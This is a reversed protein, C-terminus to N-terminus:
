PERLTALPDSRLAAMAPWAAAAMTAVFLAAAASGAAMPDVVAAAPLLRGLSYAAAFVLILGAIMAMAVLRLTETLVSGLVHVRSAGIAMRIGFEQRRDAVSYSVVGFVGVASLLVALAALVSLLAANFRPAAITRGIRNDLTMMGEVPVDRDFEAVVARASTAVSLPDGAVRAMVILERVVDQALPVFVQPGAPESLSQRVDDVVGVVRVWDRDETTSGLILAGIPDAGPWYREAAARNVIAVPEGRPEGPEFLRGNLLPVGLVELYGASVPVYSVHPLDAMPVERGRITLSNFWGTDDVPPTLTAGAREIGPVQELRAILEDAARGVSAGDAYKADPLQVSWTLVGSSVVGTDVRALDAFTAILTGALTALSFALGVQLAVLARRARVASRPTSARSGRLAALAEPTTLRRGRWVPLIAVILACTVSAALAFVAVHPNAVAVGGARPIAGDGLALLWRVGPGALILGVLGGSCALVLTEAVVLSALRSWSAGLAARMALERARGISRALFLSAVNACAIALLVAVAALIVVLAGRQRGVLTELLPVPDFYNAKNYDPYARELDGAIADLRARALAPSLGPRLRAVMSHRHWRWQGVPDVVPALPHWGDSGSPFDFAGPMVGVIEYSAGDLRLVQGVADPRGGLVGTWLAHSIVIVDAGTREEERTFWRGLEPRVEFTDSFNASTARTRLTRAEGQGTLVQSDYAWISLTDFIESEERLRAYNGYAVMRAEPNNRDLEYVRVLRDASPYPLPALLVRDVVAYIATLAGIGLGLTAVAVLAFGRQRALTRCALGLDRPFAALSGTLRPGGAATSRRESWATRAVDAITHRWFRLAGMMGAFQLKARDRRFSDMLDAGYRDRFARPYALLLWSFLRDGRPPAPPRTPGGTV